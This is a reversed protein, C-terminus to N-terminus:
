RQLKLCAKAFAVGIGAMTKGCGLYHYGGNSTALQYRALDEKGVMKERHQEMYERQQKRSMSGDANPGKKNRLQRALQNAKNIKEAIPELEDPWFAATQVAAVNGRFEALEAPAAMADRFGQHTAAFRDGPDLKGNVGMVGIVFPLKPARLDQRLDRIFHALCETYADYGGPRGREPYTGRDVMDNWGQFWVFGCLEYGQSDKYGKVVKGPDRLVTKVHEITDRYYRGVKENRQKRQEDVDKGQKAFNELQKENFEYPGASPPRFDTNLPKGGWACKIILVPGKHVKQMHLGFTYEPGIKDDSNQPNRRAGYTGDLKGNVVANGGRGGTLYSIWVRELTKPKGDEGLMEELLPRTAEDQAMYPLTSIKAHGQMNSQGVLVYIKLKDQALPAAALLSLCLLSAPLHTSM